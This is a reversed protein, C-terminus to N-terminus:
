SPQAFASWPYAIREPKRSSRLSSTDSGQDLGFRFKRRGLLQLFDLAVDPRSVISRCATRSTSLLLQLYRERPFISQDLEGIWITRRLPPPQTILFNLNELAGLSEGDNRTPSTSDLYKHTRLLGPFTSPRTDKADQM